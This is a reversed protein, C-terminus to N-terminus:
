KLEKPIEVEDGLRSSVFCRMAAILPTPGYVVKHAKEGVEIWARWYGRDM